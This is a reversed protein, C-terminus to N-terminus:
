RDTKIRPVPPLIAAGGGEAPYLQNLWEQPLPEVLVTQYRQQLDLRLWRRVTADGAARQERQRGLRDGTWSM